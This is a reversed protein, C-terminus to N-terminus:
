FTDPKTSSTLLALYTRTKNWKRHVVIRDFRNLCLQMSMFGNLQRCVQGCLWFAEEIIKKAVWKPDVDGLLIAPVTAIIEETAPNIVEFNNSGMM